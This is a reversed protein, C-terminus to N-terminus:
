CTGTRIIIGSTRNMRGHRKRTMMPGAPMWIASVKLLWHPPHEHSAHLVATGSGGMEVRPADRRRYTDEGERQRHARDEPVTAEDLGDRHDDHQGQHCRQRGEELPRGTVVGGVPEDDALGDDHGRQHHRRLRHGLETGVQGHWRDDRADPVPDHRREVDGQQRPDRHRGRQRSIRRGPRQVTQPLGQRPQEDPGPDARQRAPLGPRGSIERGPLRRVGRGVVQHDPDVM